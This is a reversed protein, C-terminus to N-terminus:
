KSDIAMHKKAKDIDRGMNLPDSPDLRMGGEWILAAERPRGAVYADIGKRHIGQLHALIESKNQRFFALAQPDGPDISLIDRNSVIAQSLRGASYSAKANASLGSKRTNQDAEAEAKLKLALANGPDLNLVAQASRIAGKFNRTLIFGQGADLNKQIEKLAGESQGTRSLQARLAAIRLQADNYFEDPKAKLKDIPYAGVAREYQIM